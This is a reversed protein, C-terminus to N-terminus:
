EIPYQTSRCYIGRSGDQKEKEKGCLPIMMSLVKSGSRSRPSGGPPMLLKMGGNVKKKEKKKKQQINIEKTAHQYKKNEKRAQNIKKM